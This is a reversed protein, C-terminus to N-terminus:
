ERKRVHQVNMTSLVNIGADLLAEVDEFRKNNKSGPVNTHALEDVFVIDPKRELLGDLDLETLEVGKYQVTQRPFLPLGEVLAATEKRGHTEVIGVLADM